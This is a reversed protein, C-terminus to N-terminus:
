MPRTPSRTRSDMPMLTVEGEIKFTESLRVRQLSNSIDRLFARDDVQHGTPECDVKEKACVESQTHGFQLRSMTLLPLADTGGPANHDIM